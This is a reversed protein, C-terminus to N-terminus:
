PQGSKAAVSPKAKVHGLVVAHQNSQPKHRNGKKGTTHVMPEAPHMTRKATPRLGRRVMTESPKSAAIDRARDASTASLIARDDLGTGAPVVNV